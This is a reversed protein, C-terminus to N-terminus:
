GDDPATGTSGTDTPTSGYASSSGFGSGGFVNHYLWNGAMAGFLGGMLGSMFGGGGFGGGGGGYGPGYGGPGAGYSGQSTFARILGILVWVIGVVILIPCLLGWIGGGMLPAPRAPRGPAAPAPAATKVHHESMTKRILEVGEVLAEDYKKKTFRERMLDDVPGTDAYTFLGSRATEGGVDVQISHPDKSILIYVGNVHRAAARERAWKPISKEEAPKKEFTEIIVERSWRRKIDAIIDDAKRIAEPGFFHADDRIFSSAVAVPTKDDKKEDKLNAVMKEHIFRLGALLGEDFKRERFDKGMLEILEKRNAPTFGHKQTEPDEVVYFRRPDKCLLIYVGHVKHERTRDVAWKYLAEKGKDGPAELAERRDAPATSFTEIVVDKGTDKKIQAILENAKAITERSFYEGNDRVDARVPHTSGILCLLSLCAPLLSWRSFITM